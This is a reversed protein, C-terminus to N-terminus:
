KNLYKLVKYLGMPDGPIYFSYVNSYTFWSPAHWERLNHKENWDRSVRVGFNVNFDIVEYELIKDEKKKPSFVYQNKADKEIEQETYSYYETNVLPEKKIAEVLNKECIESLQDFDRNRYARVFSEYAYKFGKEFDIELKEKKSIERLNHDFSEVFSKETSPRMPVLYENQNGFKYVRNKLYEQYIIGEETIGIKSLKGFCRKNILKVGIM